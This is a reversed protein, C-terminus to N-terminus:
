ASEDAVVRSRRSTAPPQECFTQLLVSVNYVYMYVYMCNRVSGTKSKGSHVFTWDQLIRTLLTNSPKRLNVVWRIALSNALSQKYLNSSGCNGYEQTPVFKSGCCLNTSCLRLYKM